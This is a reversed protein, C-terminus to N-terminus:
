HTVRAAQTRRRMKLFLELVYNLLIQVKVDNVGHAYHTGDYSSVDSTLEVTNLVPVEFRALYRAIKQSFPGCREIGQLRRYPLPKLLGPHDVSVWLLKPWGQGHTRVEAVVPTLYQEIVRAANCHDHFGIGLVLLSGKRRLLSRATALAVDATSTNQASVFEVGFHRDSAAMKINQCFDTSPLHRSSSALHMKGCITRTFQAQGQCETTIEPPTNVALSGTLANDRLIIMLAQYMKRLMSDGMVVLRVGNVRLLTCAKRPSFRQMKCTSERPQWYALEALIERRLDFCNGSECRCEAAAMNRCRGEHCCPTPGDPECLAM